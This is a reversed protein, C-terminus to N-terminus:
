AEAGARRVRPDLLPYSLDALLNATVVGVTILLFAGQLLPYDRAVVSEYVLRGLGPYGFVTEVVVAGSALVGLRLAVNTHIPLLANRLAHRLVVTRQRLGKAEAMLVYDEGLTTLMTARALLYVGGVSALTVTAIPLVARQLVEGFLAPGSVAALPVAGFAPFWALQVAFVAILVMGLWFGPVADLLLMSVLLGLDIPSGRRWASLTGLGVGVLTSLAVAPLVLLVTWPARDKLVASVPQGFRVSTGLDARTLGVLYSTYQEPIPLDLGYTALLRTRQQPTLDDAAAGLVFHLPDGPALRPLAFNLTLAVGLVLVYQALRGFWSV